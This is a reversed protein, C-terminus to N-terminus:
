CPQDEKHYISNKLKEFQFIMSHIDEWLTLYKGKRANLEIKFAADKLESADMEGFLEKVSHIIEEVELYNNNRAAVVLDNLRQDAQTLSNKLDSGYRIVSNTIFELEGQENIVPIESFDDKGSVKAILCDMLYALEEIKIPKAIYEDMGQNIFNERDGLLSFATVAIIPTHHGGVELERIQKVAELGDMVPMQVDMLIIDFTQKQYARLVELGNNAVIVEHGKKQLMRLLFTQNIPDDEALLIHYRRKPLSNLLVSDKQELGKGIQFPLRFSFISGKGVESDVKIEGGMMEILQKSIVLGLGTGGHKRTYSADIQSFSKFLKEMDTKSIGIGTDKVSFELVVQESSSQIMKIDLKVEGHDTFKIANNILNNLVQLLRNSDGYLNFPTDSFFTYGFEIKKEKARVMHIKYIQQILSSLHFYTNNIKFKGAEMKSFDLVDNIITLLSDACNKATNLNNSQEKTLKTMLTLDIMGTIGNIPTRIEHSMNALFESKAINASEAEEKAKVLKKQSDFLTLEAVKRDTIENVIMALMGDIPIFASVEFWRGSAEEYEYVPLHEFNANRRLEAEIRKLLDKLFDPYVESVRHGISDEVNFHLMREFAHNAEVLEFDIARRTEDKVTRLLLFADSMNVFLSQYKNQNEKILREATLRYTIDRCVSLIVKTGNMEFLHGSVEVPITRGDKSRHASNYVQHEHLVLNRYTEELKERMEETRIDYLTLKKFEEKTYGLMKCAADNADIIYSCNNVEDYEHLLIGDTANDFLLRYKEESDKIAKEALKREEERRKMDTIDDMALIIHKRGEISIPVFNINFWPKLLKGDIRFTHQLVVGRVPEGTTLVRKMTRWLQCLSCSIGNGCGKEYSNNCFLGEGFKKGLIDGSDIQLMSSLARNVQKIVREEDLLVIGVPIAEFATVLNNRENVVSDELAKIKTIDRFVIIVGSVHDHPDRIPSYSASIICRLGSKNVMATHSKLGLKKLKMLVEEIPNRIPEMTISNELTLLTDIHMRYAEQRDWETLEEASDNMYNIYGSTDTMIVGDGICNLATILQQQEEQTSSNHM